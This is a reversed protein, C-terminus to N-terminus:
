HLPVTPEDFAGRNADWTGWFHEQGVCTLGIRIHGDKGSFEVSSWILPRDGSPSVGEMRGYAKGPLIGPFPNSADRTSVVGPRKSAVYKFFDDFSRIFTSESGKGIVVGPAQQDMMDRALLQLTEFGDSEAQEARFRGQLLYWLGFLLIGLVTIAIAARPLWKLYARWKPPDAPHYDIKHADPQSM